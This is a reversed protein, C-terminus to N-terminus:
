ILRLCLEDLVLRGKLTAKLWANERILFGEAIFAEIADQKEEPLISQFKDELKTM